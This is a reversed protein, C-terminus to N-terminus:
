QGELVKLVADYLEIMAAPNHAAVHSADDGDTSHFEYNSGKRGVLYDGIIAVTAIEGTSESHKYIWGDPTAKEALERLARIKSILSENDPKLGEVQVTLEHAKFESM